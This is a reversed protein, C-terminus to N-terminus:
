TSMLRRLLRNVPREAAPEVDNGLQSSMEVPSTKMLEWVCCTKVTVYTPVGCSSRTFQDFVWHTEGTILRKCAFNLNSYVDLVDKNIAFPQKTIM